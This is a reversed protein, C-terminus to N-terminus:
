FRLLSDIGKWVPPVQLGKMGHAYSLVDFLEAEPWRGMGEVDLDMFDAPTLQSTDAESCVHSQSPFFIPTNLQYLNMWSVVMDGCYIEQQLSPILDVISRAFKSTYKRLETLLHYSGSTQQLLYTYIM